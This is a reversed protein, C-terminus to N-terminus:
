RNAVMQEVFATHAKNLVDLSAAQYKQPDAQYEFKRSMNTGLGGIASVINVALEVSKETQSSDDLISAFEKDSAIPQGLTMNGIKDSFTGGHGSSIGLFGQDVSLMQGVKLSSSSSWFNGHGDSGAFDVFYSVNIIAVGTRKGFEASAHMPNSFAFGGMVGQIDGHFVPQQAGIASPSFYTAQGYSSLFGSNDDTYPFTYEKTGNYEESGVFQARPIVNYGQAKLANIFDQYAQNTIKQKVDVSVGSLKALGTSKGGFGSGLLGGGAKKSMRKSENFGVKFGGIVVDKKGKFADEVSIEISDNTSLGAFGGSRTEAQMVGKESTTVCGSLFAAIVALFVFYKKM